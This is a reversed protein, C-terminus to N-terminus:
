QPTFMTLYELERRITHAEEDFAQAASRSIRSATKLAEECRTLSAIARTWSQSADNAIAMDTSASAAAVTNAAEYNAEDQQLQLLHGAVQSVLSQMDIQAQSAIAKAKSAQNGKKSGKGFGPPPGAPPTPVPFPEEDSWEQVAEAKNAEEKAKEANYRHYESCALHNEVWSIAQARSPFTGMCKNGKKCYNSRPCYAGFKKVM